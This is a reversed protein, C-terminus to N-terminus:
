IAIVPATPGDEIIAANLIRTGAFYLDIDAQVEIKTASMKGSTQDDEDRIGRNQYLWVGALKAAWDIVQFLRDTTASLPVAYRSGTFRDNIIREATDIAAQIRRENAAADDNDLNSWRAVNDVGWVAEVDASGIYIGQARAM